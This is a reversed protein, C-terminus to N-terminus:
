GTDDVATFKLHAKGAAYAGACAPLLTLAEWTLFALGDRAVFCAALSPLGCLWVGWRWTKEPWLLGFFAGLAAHSLVFIAGARGAGGHSVDAPGEAFFSPLDGGFYYAAVHVFPLAVLGACVAFLYSLHPVDEEGAAM